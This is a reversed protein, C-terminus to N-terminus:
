FSKFKLVKLFLLIEEHSSAEIKYQVHVFSLSFSLWRVLGTALPDTAALKSM